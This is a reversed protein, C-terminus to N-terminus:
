EADGRLRLKAAYEAITEDSITALEVREKRVVDAFERLLDEVTPQKYHRCKALLVTHGNEGDWARWIGDISITMDNATFIGNTHELRDGVHVYEGDADKPLRVWGHEVMADEHQACWDDASAFGEDYATEHERQLAEEHAKDIRDLDCLLASKVIFVTDFTASSQTCVDIDRRVEDTIRGGNTADMREDM